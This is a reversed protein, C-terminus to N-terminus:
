LPPPNLGLVNSRETQEHFHFINSKLPFLISFSTSGYFKSLANKFIGTFYIVGLEVFGSTPGSIIRFILVQDLKFLLSATTGQFLYIKVM